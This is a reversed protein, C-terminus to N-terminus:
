EILKIQRAKFPTVIFVPSNKPSPISGEPFVVGDLGVKVTQGSQDWSIIIGAEGTPANLPRMVADDFWAKCAYAYLSLRGDTYASHDAAFLFRDDLYCAIRQTEREKRVVLMLTYWKDTQFDRNLGSLEILGMSPNRYYLVTPGGSQAKFRFLYYKDFDKYRCIIGAIRNSLPQVKVRCKYIFSERESQKWVSIGYGGSYQFTYKGHDIWWYDPNWTPEWESDTNFPEHREKFATLREVQSPDGPKYVEKISGDIEKQLVAWAQVTDSGLGDLGEIRQKPELTIEQAIYPTEDYRYSAVVYDDKNLDGSALVVEGLDDDVSSVTAEIGNVKVTVHEPEDPVGDMDRDSIPTYSVKFNARTVYCEVYNCHLVAETTGDSPNTTRALVWIYGDGDIYNGLNTTLTITLTEDAGATGSVENSWASSVHDWIKVTVGNGAPATGYGEFTVVIKKVDSEPFGCKFRFLMMAYEGNVSTPKSFRVNDSWEIQGYESDALEAGFPPTPESSASHHYAEHGGVDSAKVSVYNYLEILRDSVPEEVPRQVVVQVNKGVYVTM